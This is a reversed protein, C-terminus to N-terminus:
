LTQFDPFDGLFDRNVVNPILSRKKGYNQIQDFILELANTDMKVDIQM